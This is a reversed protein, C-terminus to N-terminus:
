VHLVLQNVCETPDFTVHLWTMFSCACLLISVMCLKVLRMTTKIFDLATLSFGNLWVQVRLIDTILM